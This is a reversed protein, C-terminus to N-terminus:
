KSQQEKPAAPADSPAPASEKPAASPRVSAASADLEALLAVVAKKAATNEGVLGDLKTLVDRAQQIEHRLMLGLGKLWLAEPKAPDEALVKEVIKTAEDRDSDAGSRLLASALVLSVAQDNPAMSQAQRYMALSETERNLVRYSRALMLMDDASVNGAKVRKELSAVMAAVDPAGNSDISKPLPVRGDAHPNSNPRIDQKELGFTLIATSVVIATALTAGLLLYSRSLREVSAREARAKSLEASAREAEEMVRKRKFRYDNDDIEAESFAVELAVKEEVLRDKAERGASLRDTADHAKAWFRFFMWAGLLCCLLIAALIMTM